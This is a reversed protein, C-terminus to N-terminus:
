RARAACGAGPARRAHLALLAGDASSASERSSSLTSSSPATARAITFATRSRTRVHRPRAARRGRAPDRAPRARLRRRARRARAPRPASHTRARRAPRRPCPCAARRARASGAAASPAPTRRRARSRRPDRPAVEAALVAIQEVGERALAREHERARAQELLGLARRHARARLLQAARQQRRHRVVQARRQGRDGARRARQAVLSGAGVRALAALQEVRDRSSASGGRAAARSGARCSAGRTPRGRAWARTPAARPSRRRPAPAGRPAARQGRSRAGLQGLVQREREPIRQQELLQDDVQELVGGLVRRGPVGISIRARLPRHARELELHGVAPRAERRAVLRADELLELAACRGPAPPTPRPRAIQRPMAVACPPECRPRSGAPRRRAHEPQHQRQEVRWGSAAAASGTSPPRPSRARAARGAPRPRAASAASGARRARAARSGAADLGLVRRRALHRRRAVVGVQHQEVEAQGVAVADRQAFLRRANVCTGM